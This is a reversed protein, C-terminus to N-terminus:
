ASMCIRGSFSKTFFEDLNCKWVKLEEAWDVPPETESAMQHQRDVFDEFSTAM